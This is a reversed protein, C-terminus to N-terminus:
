SDMLRFYLQQAKRVDGVTPQHKLVPDGLPKLFTREDKENETEDGRM